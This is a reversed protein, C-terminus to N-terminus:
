LERHGTVPWKWRQENGPVVCPVVQLEYENAGESTPVLQMCGEPHASNDGHRLKGTATFHWQQNGGAAHCKQQTVRAPMVGWADLCLGSTTQMEGTQTLRFAQNGAHETTSLLVSPTHPDSDHVPNMVLAACYKEDCTVCFLVCLIM